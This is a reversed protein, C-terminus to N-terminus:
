TNPANGPLAGFLAKDGFTAYGWPYYFGELATWIRMLVPHDIRLHCIHLTGLMAFVLGLPCHWQPCLVLILCGLHTVPRQLGTSPWGMMISARRPCLISKLIGSWSPLLCFARASGWSCSICPSLSWHLFSTSTAFGRPRLGPLPTVVRRNLALSYCYLLLLFLSLLSLLPFPLLILLLLLNGKNRLFVGTMCIAYTRPLVLYVYM